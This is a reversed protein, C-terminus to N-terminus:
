RDAGGTSCDRLGCWHSKSVCLTAVQSPVPQCAVKKVNDMGVMEWFETYSLGAKGVAKKKKKEDKKDEVKDEIKDEIQARAIHCCCTKM